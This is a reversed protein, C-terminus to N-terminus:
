STAERKESRAELKDSRAEYCLLSSVKLNPYRNSELAAKATDYVQMLYLCFILWFPFFFFLIFHFSILYRDYIDNLMFYLVAKRKCVDYAQQQMMNQAGWEAWGWPKSTFDYTSDSNDQYWNYTSDMLSLYQQSGNM